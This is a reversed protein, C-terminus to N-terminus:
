PDGPLSGGEFLCEWGLGWAEPDVVADDQRLKSQVFRAITHQLEPCPRLMEVTLPERSFPNVSASLLHREIMSRDVIHGSPLQVPHLMLTNLIPDLYEDPVPGLREDMQEHLAMVQETHDVVQLFKERWASTLSPDSRLLVAARRFRVSEFRGDAALASVFRSALQREFRTMDEVARSECAKAELAALASEEDPENDAEVENQREDLPPPPINPSPTGRSMAVDKELRFLCSSLKWRQHVDLDGIKEEMLIGAYNSLKWASAEPCSHHLGACRVVVLLAEALALMGDQYIEASFGWKSPHLHTELTAVVFSLTSATQDVLSRRCLVARLPPVAVIWALLELCEILVRFTTRAKNFHLAMYSQMMAPQFYAGTTSTPSDQLEQLRRMALVKSTAEDLLRTIDHLAGSFLLGMGHDNASWREAEQAVFPANWLWRLLLLTSLRAPLLGWSTDGGTNNSYQDLDNHFRLLNNVASRRLTPRIALVDYLVLANRTSVKVPALSMLARILQVRVHPSNTLHRSGVLTFLLTVLPEVAAPSWDVGDCPHVGAVYLVDALNCLVAEPVLAYALSVAGDGKVDDTRETSYRMLHLLWQATRTYHGFLLRLFAPAFLQVEMASKTKLLEDVRTANMTLAHHHHHTSRTSRRGGGGGSGQSQQRTRTEVNCLAKLQMCERHVSVYRMLSLVPGVHLSKMAVYWWMDPQDARPPLFQPPYMSQPLRITSPTSFSITSTDLYHHGPAHLRHPNGNADAEEAQVCALCAQQDCESCQLVGTCEGACTPCWTSSLNPEVAVIPQKRFPWTTVQPLPINLRLFVHTPPHDLPPPIYHHTSHSPHSGHQPGHIQRRHDYCSACLDFDDCHICKYRVGVFDKDQCHDCVVGAHGDYQPYFLPARSGEDASPPLTHSELEVVHNPLIQTLNALSLRGPRTTHWTVDIQTVDDVYATTVQLAMAAVNLLFGDSACEVPSHGLRRRVSNADISCTVWCMMAQAIAGGHSCFARVVATQMGQVSDLTTRVTSKDATPGCLCDGPVIEDPFSTHRFFPGLFSAMEISKGTIVVPLWQSSHVLAACFSSSSSVMDHLLTLLPVLPGGATLPLELVRNRLTRAIDLAVVSMNAACLSDLAHTWLGDLLRRPSTITASTIGHTRRPICPVTGSSLSAVPIRTFCEKCLNVDCGACRYVVDTKVLAVRHCISCPWSSTSSFVVAGNSPVLPHVHLPHMHGYEMSSALVSTLLITAADVPGDDHHCLTHVHSLIMTHAMAYGAAEAASHLSESLNHSATKQQQQNIRDMCTLLIDVLHVVARHSPKWPHDPSDQTLESFFETSRVTVPRGPTYQLASSLPRLSLVDQLIRSETDLASLFTHHFASAAPSPAISTPFPLAVRSRM